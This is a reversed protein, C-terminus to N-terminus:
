VCANASPDITPESTTPTTTPEFYSSDLAPLPALHAQLWTRFYRSRSTVRAFRSHLLLRPMPVTSKHRPGESGIDTPKEYCTRIVSLQNNHDYLAKIEALTTQPTDLAAWANIQETAARIRDATNLTAEFYTVAAAEFDAGQAAYCLGHKQFEHDYIDCLSDYASDTSADIWKEGMEALLTAQNEAFKVIDYPDNEVTDSPNCCSVYGDNYNPWLGHITLKSNTLSIAASSRYSSHELSLYDFDGPVKEKALCTPDKTLCTASPTASSMSRRDVWRGYDIALTM